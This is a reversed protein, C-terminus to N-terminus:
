NRERKQSSKLKIYNYIDDEEKEAVVTFSAVKDDDKFLEHYGKNGDIDVSQVPLEYGEEFM